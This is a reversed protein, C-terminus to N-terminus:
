KPCNKRTEIPLIMAHLVYADRSTGPHFEGNDVRNYLSVAKQSDVDSDFFVFLMLRGDATKPPEAMAGIELSAKRIAALQEASGSVAFSVFSSMTGDRNPIAVSLCKAPAAAQLPSALTLFAVAFGIV